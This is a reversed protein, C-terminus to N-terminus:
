HRKLHGRTGSDKALKLRLVQELMKDSYSMMPILISSLIQCKRAIMWFLIKRWIKMRSAEQIPIKSCIWFSISLCIGQIRISFNKCYFLNRRLYMNLKLLLRKRFILRNKGRRGWNRIRRGRVVRRFERVFNSLLKSLGTVVRRRCRMVSLKFLSNHIKRDTRVTLIM